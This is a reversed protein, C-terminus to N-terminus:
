TRIGSKYLLEEIAARYETAVRDVDSRRCNFYVKHAAFNGIVRFGDLASKTNRSLRLPNNSRANAVIGELMLYNGDANQISKELNHHEYSLILLVELLRRMLVACGDFINYEYSANIQRALSEIFGRTSMYLPAPLIPDESLVDDSRTRLGPYKLQLEDVDAAHLKWKGQDNGRVFSRSLRLSRALRTSNPRALSLESFWLNVDGLDFDTRNETKRVFFALLRVKEIELAGFLEARRAFEDINV